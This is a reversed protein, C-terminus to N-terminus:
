PRKLPIYLCFITKQSKHDYIRVLKEEGFASGKNPIMRQETDSKTKNSMQLLMQEIGHKYFDLFSIIVELRWKVYHPESCVIAYYECSKIGNILSELAKKYCITTFSDLKILLVNGVLSRRDDLLLLIGSRLFLFM